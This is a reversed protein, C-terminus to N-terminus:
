WFGSATFMLALFFKIIVDGFGNFKFSVLLKQDCERIPINKDVKFGDNNDSSKSTKNASATDVNDTEQNTEPKKQKTMSKPPVFEFQKIKSLASPTRTPTDVADTKTNTNKQPTRATKSEKQPSKSNSRKSAADESQNSNTSLYGDTNPRFDESSQIAASKRSPKNDESSEESSDEVIQININIKAAISLQGNSSNVRISSGPTSLIVNSSTRKICDSDIRGTKRIPSSHSATLRVGSLSRILQRPQDSTSKIVPIDVIINNDSIGPKDQKTDDHLQLEKSEAQKQPAEDDDISPEIVSQDDISEEDTTEPVYVDEKTSKSHQSSNFSNESPAIFPANDFFNNVQQMSSSDITSLNYMAGDNSSPFSPKLPPEQSINRKHQESEPDSEETDSDSLVIVVDSENKDETQKSFIPEEFSVDDSSLTQVSYTLIGDGKKSKEQTTDQEDNNHHLDLQDFQRSINQLQEDSKVTSNDRDSPSLFSLNQMQTDIRDINVVPNQTIAQSIEKLGDEIEKSDISSGVSDTDDDTLIDLHTDEKTSEYDLIKPKQACSLEDEDMEVMPENLVKTMTTTTTTTCNVTQTAHVTNEKKANISEVAIFKTTALTLKSFESSNKKQM